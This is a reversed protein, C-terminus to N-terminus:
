KVVTARAKQFLAELSSALVGSGLSRRAGGGFGV